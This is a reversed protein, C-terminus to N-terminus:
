SAGTRVAASAVADGLRRRVAERRFTVIARLQRAAVLRHVLHDVLGPRGRFADDGMIRTGGGIRQLTLAHRCSQWPGVVQELVLRTPPDLETVRVRLYVPFGWWRFIYEWETGVGLDGSPGPVFRMATSPPEIAALSRPDALFAFAEDIGASVMIEWRVGYAYGGPM